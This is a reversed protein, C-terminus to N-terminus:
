PAAEARTGTMAAGERADRDDRRGGAAKPMM